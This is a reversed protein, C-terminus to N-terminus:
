DRGTETKGLSKQKKMVWDIVRSVSGSVIEVKPFKKAWKRHYSVKLCYIAIGKLTELEYVRPVVNEGLSGSTILICDNCTM